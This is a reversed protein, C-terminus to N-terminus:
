KRRIKIADNVDYRIGYKSCLEQGKRSGNEAAKKYWFYAEQRAGRRFLTDGRAIWDTLMSSETTEVNSSSDGSKYSNTQTSSYLGDEEVSVSEEQDREKMAQSISNNIEIYLNKDLNKIADLLQKRVRDYDTYAQKLEDLSNKEDAYIPQMEIASDLKEKLSGCNESIWSCLNDLQSYEDESMKYGSSVFSMLGSIQSPIQKINDSAETQQALLEEITDNLDAIIKESKRIEKKLKSQEVLIDNLNNQLSLCIPDLKIDSRSSTLNKIINMLESLDTKQCFRIYGGVRIGASNMTRKIHSELRNLEGPSKTDIKNIIVYLPLEKLHDSIIKLSTKNIEGSNADMVWFLANAEQIVALTRDQDEQDNSSFGPTDLISLGKLNGNNYKMVFNTIVSSVNVRSLIDKNVKEFTTKDIKKINGNPDVFQSLFTAGYSIYTAIATTAKSSVPLKPCNPDDQSLIRNVISTKGASFEGIFAVVKKDRLWSKRQLNAWHIVIEKVAEIHEDIDKCYQKQLPIYQDFIIDEVKQVNKSHQVADRDDADEAQLIANVFDIAEKKSADEAQLEDCKTEASQLLSETSKLKQNVQSLQETAEEYEGKAKSLKKKVSSIEDELDEIEEEKEELEKAKATLNKRLLAIVGSNDGETAAAAISDIEKRLSSLDDAKKELQQNLSKETDQLARIESEKSSLEDTKAELQKDLSRKTEQLAEMDREKSSLENRLQVAQDSFERIRQRNTVSSSHMKLWTVLCGLLLSVIIILIETM